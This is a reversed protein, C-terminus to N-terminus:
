TIMQSNQLPYLQMNIYAGLLKTKTIILNLSKLDNRTKYRLKNDIYILTEGKSATTPTWEYTYDQLNINSLVTRNERQRCEIIGIAKPKNQCGVLYKMDDFHYPLSSISM